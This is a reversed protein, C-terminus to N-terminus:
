RPTSRHAHPQRQMSASPTMPQPRYINAFGLPLPAEVDIPEGTLPHPFDSLNPTCSTAEMAPCAPSTDFPLGTMRTSSSRRGPSPRHFALHIAQNSSPPRFAPSVEFTTTSTTRSIVRASSKSPKGTPSAAWVSGILPHPVLDIPTLIITPTTRAVNQSSLATSKRSAQPHELRRFAKLRGSSRRQRLTRHRHHSRGLRHVPNANPTHTQVLRLHGSAAAPSPPSATPNTSPWCIPTMSSSESTSLADPETWRRSTTASARPNAQPSCNAVPLRISNLTVERSSNAGQPTSDPYLSALHSLWNPWSREASPPTPM